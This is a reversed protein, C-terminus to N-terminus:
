SGASGSPSSLIQAAAAAAASRRRKPMAPSDDTLIDLVSCDLIECLREITGLKPDGKTGNALHYWQQKPKGTFGYAEGAAEMTAFRKKRLTEIKERDLPM